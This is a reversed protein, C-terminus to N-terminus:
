FIFPDRLSSNYSSWPSFGNWFDNPDQWEFTHRYIKYIQGSKGEINDNSIAMNILM